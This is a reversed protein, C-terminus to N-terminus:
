WATTDEIRMEFTVVNAVRGPDEVKQSRQIREFLRKLGLSGNSPAREQRLARSASLVRRLRILIADLVVEAKAPLERPRLQCQVIPSISVLEAQRLRFVQFTGGQAREQHLPPQRVEGEEVVVAEVVVALAAQVAALFSTWEV